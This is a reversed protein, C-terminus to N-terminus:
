SAKDVHHLLPWPSFGPLSRWLRRPWTPFPIALIRNGHPLRGLWENNRRRFNIVYFCVKLIERWFPCTYSTQIIQVEQAIFLKFHERVNHVRQILSLNNNKNDNYSIKAHLHLSNGEILDQVYLNGRQCHLNLKRFHVILWYPSFYNEKKGILLGNLKTTDVVSIIKVVNVINVNLHCM